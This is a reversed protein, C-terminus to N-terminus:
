EKKTSRLLERTIYLVKPNNSSLLMERLFIGLLAIFVIALSIALAFLTRPPYTRKAPPVAFDVVQLVPYDKKEDFKAQEYLPVIFELLANNIKVDRFRRVYEEATRPLGNISLFISGPQGSNRLQSLKREYEAIQIDMNQVQPSEKDYVKELIGKEVQRAILQSELESYAALIVRLQSEVEFMKSREQFFKLSDESVRLEQQIEGVRKELFLRSEKSKNVKLDIVRKNLLAVLYNTIDAARRANNARVTIKFASEETEETIIDKALKKVAKEMCDVSASDLHYIAVLGFRGIVDELNTRSYIITNYKGIDGRSTGGSLGMPLGRLGKMLGTIGGANEDELPIITATADFQDDIFLYISLYSITLSFLLLVFLYKRWKTVLVFYDLLDVGKDVSM